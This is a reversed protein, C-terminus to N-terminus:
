CEAVGNRGSNGETARVAAPDIDVADVQAAGLLAAAIALVGSGSGVDLVTAGPQLREELAELCMRTTPHQGTGFAQGPDLEVVVDDGRPRYRRWSPRIVVRRGVRLVPFHRKWADAWSADRVTRTRLPRVVGDILAGLDRRVATVAAQSGACGAPLWARLRVPAAAELSVGGDEDIAEYPAEISVGAPVYSRLIDAAADVADPRVSLSLELYDM